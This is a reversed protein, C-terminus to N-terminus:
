VMAGSETCGTKLVEDFQDAIEQAMWVIHAARDPCFDEIARDRKSSNCSKCAPVLNCPYNSGGKSLPIVHDATDPDPRACYVCVNGWLCVVEEWAEGWGYGAAEAYLGSRTLAKRRSAARGKASKLYREKSRKGKETKQYRLVSEQAEDSHRYRLFAEPNHVRWKTNQAQTKEPYLIYRIQTKSIGFWEALEDLTGEKQEWMAVVCAQDEVSLAGGIQRSIHPVYNYGDALQSAGEGRKM